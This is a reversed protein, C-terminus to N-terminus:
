AHYIMSGLVVIALSRFFAVTKSIDDDSEDLWIQVKKAQIYVEGMLQVQAAKKDNDAQNLCIADM